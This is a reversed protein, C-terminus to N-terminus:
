LRTATFFACGLLPPLSAFIAAMLLAYSIRELGPVNEKRKMLKDSGRVYEKFWFKTLTKICTIIRIVWGGSLMAVGECSSETGAMRKHLEELLLASGTELETIRITLVREPFRASRVMYLLKIDSTRLVGNNYAQILLINPQILYYTSNYDSKERGNM